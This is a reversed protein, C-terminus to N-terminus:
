GDALWIQGKVQTRMGESNAFEAKHIYSGDDQRSFYEFGTLEQGRLEWGIVGDELLLTGSLFGLHPSELEIIAPAGELLLRYGNVIANPAGRLTVKHWWLGNAGCWETDFPVWEEKFPMQLIGQGLWRGDELLFRAM